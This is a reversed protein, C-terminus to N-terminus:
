RPTADLARQLHREFANRSSTAALKGGMRESVTTIAMALISSSTLYTIRAIRPFHPRHPAVLFARADSDYGTVDFWDQFITLPQETAAVAKEVAASIQDACALALTGSAHSCLVDPMPSWFRLSYTSQFVPTEATSM